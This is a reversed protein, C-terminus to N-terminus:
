KSTLSTIVLILTVLNTLLGIVPAIDRVSESLIRRGPEIYIIDNPLLRLNAKRMGEITSLDIIQVDPNKLDGRILKINYAKGEYTIGGYIAIAEIVNMNPNELPVVKGGMPGLVVVRRNVLTTVVFPTNYFAEYKIQLLSDAQYLSYGELYVDGVMPLKVYGNERVLYQHELRQGQQIPKVLELDPDIVREGGNTYVKLQLYDDKQIVYRKEANEVLRQISDVVYEQHTRFMRNQTYLKCSFALPALCLLLLYNLIKNM